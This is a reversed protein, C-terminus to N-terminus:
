MCTADHVILTSYPPCGHGGVTYWGQASTGIRQCMPTALGACSVTCLLM